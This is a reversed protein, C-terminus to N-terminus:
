TSTLNFKILGAKPLSSLDYKKLINKKNRLSLVPACVKILINYLYEESCFWFNSLKRCCVSDQTIAFRIQSFESLKWHFHSVQDGALRGRKKNQITELPEERRWVQEILRAKYDAFHMRRWTYECKVFDRSENFNEVLVSWNFVMPNLNLRSM